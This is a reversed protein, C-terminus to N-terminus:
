SFLIYIRLKDHLRDKDSFDAEFAPIQIGAIDKAIGNEDMVPKSHDFISFKESAYEHHVNMKKCSFSFETYTTEGDLSQTSSITFVEGCEQCTLTEIDITRSSLVDGGLAINCRGKCYLCIPDERDILNHDTKM